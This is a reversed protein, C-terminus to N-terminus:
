ADSSGTHVVEMESPALMLEHANHEGNGLHWWKTVCASGWQDIEDVTFEASVMNRLAAAEQESLHAFVNDPISLVRVVTGVRVPNGNRDVVELQPSTELTINLWKALLGRM